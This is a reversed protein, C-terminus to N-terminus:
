KKAEKLNKLNEVNVGLFDNIKM